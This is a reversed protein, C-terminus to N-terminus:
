KDRGAKKSPRPLDLLKEAPVGLARALDRVTRDHPAHQGNELRSITTLSVGSEQFLRPQSWRKEERLEKVREGLTQRETAMM